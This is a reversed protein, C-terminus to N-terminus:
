KETLNFDKVYREKKVKPLEPLSKRIEEVQESTTIFPLLDPEPFYRYDQADEKSRMSGTTQTDEDWRRTEQIVAQGAELLDVQRKWEYEIAKIAHSFSNMNKLETRTGFKEEGKKRASINIDCRLSGEEMKCDSVGIYKLTTKLNELYAKAEEISRFDPESVIEILPVGCRNFDILTGDTGEHLLKAADEEIHIRTIGIKQKGREETEVEVYGEYCLPFDFQSIQYAKPTDPYFYNKRDQKSWEQIKCNMALGARIAFDIVRKNITPLAGPLGLCVPCVNTNVDAGFKTSCSCYMKTETKLESHVELGMVIEYDDYPMM